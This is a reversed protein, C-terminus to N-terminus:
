ARPGARRSLLSIVAADAPPFQYELLRDPPVWAMEQAECPAISGSAHRCQFFHLVITKEPYEWRVTEVLEGVEFAAGLEEMLERRLCAELTEGPDRKGGPFEWLGELHSGPVRQTILYRGAADQILGATVEITIPSSAGPAPTM